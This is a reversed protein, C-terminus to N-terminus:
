KKYQQISQSLQGGGNKSRLELFPPPVEINFRYANHSM